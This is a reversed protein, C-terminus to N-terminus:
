KEEIEEITIYTIEGCERDVSWNLSVPILEKALDITSGEPLNEFRYAIGAEDIEIIYGGCCPCLALDPGVIIAESDFTQGEEIDQKSCSIVALAVIFVLALRFINM